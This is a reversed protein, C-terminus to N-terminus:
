ECTLYGEAGEHCGLLSSVTDDLSGNGGYVAWLLAVIWILARATKNDWRVLTYLWYLIGAGVIWAIISLQGALAEM